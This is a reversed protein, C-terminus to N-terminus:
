PQTTTTTTTTTPVTITTTTTTSSNRGAILAAGGGVVAAGGGVILATPGIAAGAAAFGLPVRPFVTVPAKTLWPAVLGRDECDSERAVVRADTESTRSVAFQRDVADLYYQVHKGVLEKKPKPLIGSHCPADSKMEVYYWDPPADVVRFYVRARALGTAPAFCANMRPYKGAVICKVTKHDIALGQALATASSALLLVLALKSAHNPM